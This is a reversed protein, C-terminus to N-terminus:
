RAITSMSRWAPDAGRQFAALIGPDGAWRLPQDWRDGYVEFRRQIRGGAESERAVLVQLGAPGQSWGAWEVAGLGPADAAPPLVQAQGGADLRWLETWGDLVQVALV